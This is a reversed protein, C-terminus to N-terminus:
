RVVTGVTTGLADAHQIMVDVGHEAARVANTIKPMMGKTIVGQEVHMAVDQPQILDIVSAADRVDRMVGPLEFLYRLRPARHALAIAIEAAMTDANTNLLSGNGDHTIPAVVVSIGNSLFLDLVQTNVRDVDGVFGFDITPHVRRHARVLDADAGTVGIANVGIRQLQAVITKNVLGGYTMTVIRLTAADTIRRGDVMTQEVGLEEALRTAIKGGGHVLIFPASLAACRELVRHLANEDDVVNGGIKVVHTM